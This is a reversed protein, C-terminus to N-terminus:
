GQCLCGSANSTTMLVLRPSPPPACVELLLLTEAIFRTAALSSQRLDAVVSVSREKEQKKRPPPAFSAVVHSVSLVVVCVCVNLSTVVSRRSTCTCSTTSLTSCKLAASKHCCGPRATWRSCWSLAAASISLVQPPLSCRTHPPAAACCLLVVVCCM